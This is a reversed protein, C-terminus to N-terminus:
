YLTYHSTDFLARLLGFEILRSLLTVEGVKTLPIDTDMRNLFAIDLHIINGLDFSQVHKPISEFSGMHEENISNTDGGYNSNKQVELHFLRLRLVLRPM